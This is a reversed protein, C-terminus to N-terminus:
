PKGIRHIADSLHVHRGARDADLVLRAAARGVVDVGIPAYRHQRGIVAAVGRMVVLGLKEGPRSDHRASRAGEDDLVSPRLIHVADYGLACVADEAQGKTQLYFNPSSADAGMSSVLALRRAGRERAARAFAVVADFDVARFAAKSGAQKMTTGLACIAADVAAPHAAGIAARVAPEDVLDVVVSRLKEHTTGLPKRGLCTVTAVRPDALLATLARAGVAGSAGTMVIHAPTSM